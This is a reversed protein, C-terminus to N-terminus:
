RAEKTLTIEMWPQWSEDDGCLEWRGTITNRDDSFAGVFRTRETEMRWTLVGHEETLTATYATPGDSGFYLTAYRELSPDYGLIEAGEVKQDGVRADVRHLLGFGGPVWEYTDTADIELAPSSSTAKVWGRTKWKGVLPELRRHELGPGEDAM